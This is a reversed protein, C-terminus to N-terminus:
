VSQHPREGFPRHMEGSAAPATSLYFLRKVERRGHAVSELIIGSLFSLSALTMLGLALVATPLRPVLGTKFYHALVPAILILSAVALVSAIASFLYFPKEHELLRLITSLIRAGDRYTRLKSISGAPRAFYPTAYEAVPMSLNLAHVTLETEIEFGKALAPFSKVFRRSFVRYGSLIDTFQQGFFVAVCATFLRNGLMHGRRYSTVDHQKRQGVVMDLNKEILMSLMDRASAADYTGDGDVLVYADAEVDAFMRRVVFGKGQMKETRVVAGAQAARLSSQDFSNNDYVFIDADPLIARFDHVVRGIAAEENYCPILVAIRCSKNM